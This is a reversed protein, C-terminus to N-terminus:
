MRHCGGRIGVKNGKEVQVDSRFRVFTFLSPGDTTVLAQTV